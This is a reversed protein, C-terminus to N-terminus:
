WYGQNSVVSHVQGEYDASWMYLRPPPRPGNADYYHRWHIGTRNYYANM